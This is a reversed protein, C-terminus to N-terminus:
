SRWLKAPRRPWAISGAIAGSPKSQRMPTPMMPAKAARSTKTDVSAITNSISDSPASSSGNRSANRAAVHGSPRRRIVGNAPTENITNKTSAQWHMLVMATTRRSDPVQLQGSKM